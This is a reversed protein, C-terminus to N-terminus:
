ETHNAGFIFKTDSGAMVTDLNKRGISNWSSRGLLIEM